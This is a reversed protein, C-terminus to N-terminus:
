DVSDFEPDQPTLHVVVVESVTIFQSYTEFSLPNDKFNLEAIRPLARLRQVDAEKIYNHEANLNELSNLEYVVNPLTSVHNHSLDLMKLQEMQTMEDPLSSLHNYSLNLETLSTFARPFKPPIKRLLNEALNCSQLVTNKMLLFVADPMQTLQCASLDLNQDEKADNCRNVVRAVDKGAM